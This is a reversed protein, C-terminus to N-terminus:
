AVKAGRSTDVGILQNITQAGSARRHRDIALETSSMAKAGLSRVGTNIGVASAGARVLRVAQDSDQGIGGCGIIDVKDGVAEYVYRVAAVAMDRFDADAGALGGPMDEAGYKQKLDPRASTNILEFADVMGEEALQCYMDLRDTGGDADGKYILPLSGAAARAAGVIRRLFELEQADRMGLTNPSTLGLNIADAVPSVKEITQAIIDPLMHRNGAEYLEKNATVQVIVPIHVNGQERQDAINGVVVSYGPNWFGYANLSKTKGHDGVVEDFTRLRPMPNGAQPFLTVGGVTVHRAGLAQWASITKGTKDWGPALGTPGSMSLGAVETELGQHAGVAGSMTGLVWVGLESGSLGHLGAEVAKKLGEHRLTDGLDDFAGTRLHQFSEAIVGNAM